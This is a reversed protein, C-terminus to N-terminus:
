QMLGRQKRRAQASEWVKVWLWRLVPASQWVSAAAVWEWPLVWGWM